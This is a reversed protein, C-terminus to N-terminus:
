PRLRKNRQALPRQEVDIKLSRLIRALRDNGVPGDLVERIQKNRPWEGHKKRSALIATRGETDTKTPTKPM